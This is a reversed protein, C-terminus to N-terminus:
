RVWTTAGGLTFAFLPSSSCWLLLQKEDEAPSAHLQLDRPQHRGRWGIRSGPPPEGSAPRSRQRGATSRRRDSITSGPGSRHRHTRPDSAEVVQEIGCAGAYGSRDHNVIFAYRMSRPAPRAHRIVIRPGYSGLLGRRWSALQEEGLAGQVGSRMRQLPARDLGLVLRGSQAHRQEGAVMPASAAAIATSAAVIHELRSCPELDALTRSSRSTRCRARAFSAQLWDLRQEAAPQPSRGADLAKRLVNDVLNASFPPSNRPWNDLRFSEAREM